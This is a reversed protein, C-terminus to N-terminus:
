IHGRKVDLVFSEQNINTIFNDLEKQDKIKLSVEYITTFDKKHIELNDIPINKASAINLINAIYNKDGSVEIFITTAYLNDSYNNWVTEILRNKENAINSCEKKHVSIGEGKTIFGVIDEGFVPKCCAAINVKINETGAVIIDNKYNENPSAKPIIKEILIDKVDKKDEYVSDIIYAPTYRLSGINLYIEELTKLKLVKLLKEINENSLVDTKSLKRKKIEKDLITTGKEIYLNRDQKSLTAKIKDRAQSTKVFNLWEKNPSSNSKTKIELIDGDALEKDLPVIQENVIAGIASDGVNSHIRYAFDIPTAGKPLEVVDGKPTYVYIIDSLLESKAISGFELDTANENGAEIMARWLELKQEMINQAKISGKEKYSWHSAIGKEAIEDMEFTRIQIEFLHGNIGFVTTHLSQYMNKKPKAIFDRFRKSIPRYKAHILGMALYCDESNEVFIRLGLIDYIDNFERGENLKTYISHISKLRSKIEFSIGYENLINSISDQMEKLVSNLNEKSDNLKIQIDNYIDPKLYKLCLDELESKISNIGLRHAIPIIVNLTENAVEKQREKTLAWLTRMDHLCDALRIFIVREDHAMGVLIKRLYIAAAETSDTLKLKNIKALNECTKAVESGFYGEIEAGTTDTNYLTDHLLAAMITIEDVNLDILISAVNLPHNIHDTGSIRLTGKHKKDAFLFAQNIKELLKADKCNLSAKKILENITLVRDETNL